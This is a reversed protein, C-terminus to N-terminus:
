LETWLQETGSLIIWNKDMKIPLEEILKYIIENLHWENKKKIKWRKFCVEYQKFSTIKM